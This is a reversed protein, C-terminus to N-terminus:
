VSLLDKFDGDYIEYVVGQGWTMQFYYGKFFWIQNHFISELQSVRIPELRDQIYDFLFDLEQNPYPEHGESYCKERYDKDHESILRQILKDFDNHKLWEEFRIFHKLQLENEMEIKKFYAKGEDSEIFKDALELSKKLIEKKM